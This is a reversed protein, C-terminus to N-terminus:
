QSKVIPATCVITLVSTPSSSFPAPVRHSATIVGWELARDPHFEPAPHLTMVLTPQNTNRPLYGREGVGRSLTLRLIAETTQNRVILDQAHHQLLAPTLPLKIKLFEAGRALRELHQALRFARGHCVRITEFLGDGYLFGRDNVPIVAESEPVIQGNLFALM